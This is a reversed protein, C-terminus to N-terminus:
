VQERRHQASDAGEEMELAKEAMKVATVRETM